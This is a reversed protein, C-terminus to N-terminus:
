MQSLFSSLRPHFSVTVQSSPSARVMSHHAAPGQHSPPPRPRRRARPPLLFCCSCRPGRLGGARSRGGHPATCTCSPRCRGRRSAARRCPSRAAPAGWAAARGSECRCRWGSRCGAAPWRGSARCWAAACPPGGRADRCAGGGLPPHTSAAGARARAGPRARLTPTRRRGAHRSSHIATATTTCWGVSRSKEDGTHMASRVCSLWRWQM